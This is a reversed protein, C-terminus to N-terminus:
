FCSSNANNKNKKKSEQKKNKRSVNRKLKLKPTLSLVLKPQRRKPMPAVNRKRLTPVKRADQRQNPIQIKRLRRQPPKRVLPKKTKM